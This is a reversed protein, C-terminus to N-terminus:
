GLLSAIEQVSRMQKEIVKDAIEMTARGLAEKNKRQTIEDTIDRMICFFILYNKDYVVTQDVYKQYEPLYVCKERVTINNNQAELFPLPDLISVVKTGLVDKPNSINMLSCAANNLQQLELAENLVILANPSNKIVHDSFSRAKELLYPLCMNLEAKGELVACAKERCTNYGCGDCNLEHEPATKGIKELVEMITRENFQPRRSALPPMKKDLSESPYDKVHFNEEGAYHTITLYDRISSQHEKKILPGGVCSDLCASMEVFCKQVKKEIIEQIACMCNKVGDVAIYNYDPHNAAMTKLIGGRTPFLRARSQTNNDEINELTIQKEDLWFSLEEFTLVCDVTGPYSEAEAKKSICPGIFVTKADPIRQKIDMCHAQMPSVVKALYPLAAPYYIQILLNVTHCCSSITIDQNTINSDYYNKVITAGVATEEVGIFGLQKLAKEMSLITANEYRAVFSPAISAYVPASSELLSKAVSIDNRTEKADQPCAIFCCGCLICETSIIDAKNDSFRISKVPCSRICKYCSKCDSQRLKLYENM